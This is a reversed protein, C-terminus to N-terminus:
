CPFWILPVTTIVNIYRCYLVMHLIYRSTRLWCIINQCSGFNCKNKLVVPINRCESSVIIEEYRPPLNQNYTGFPLKRRASHFYKPWQRLSLMENISRALCYNWTALFVLRRKILRAVNQDHSLLFM